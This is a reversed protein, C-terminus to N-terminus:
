VGLNQVILITAPLYIMVIISPVTFLLLALAIGLVSRFARIVVFALAAWIAVAVLAVFAAPLGVSTVETRATRRASHSWAMM